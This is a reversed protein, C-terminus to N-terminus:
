AAQQGRDDIPAIRHLRDKIALKQKKLAQIALPDAHTRSLLRQIEEDLHRHDRQLRQRELHQM